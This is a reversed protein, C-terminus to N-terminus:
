YVEAPGEEHGLGHLRVHDLLLEPADDRHRRGRRQTITPLRVIRGRLGANLSHRLGPRDFEALEADGGIGDRGSEDFGIHRLRGCRTPILKSSKTAAATLSIGMARDPLGSS